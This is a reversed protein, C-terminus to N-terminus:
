PTHRHLHGAPEDATSLPSKPSIGAPDSPSSTTSIAVSASRPSEGHGLAMIRFVYATDPELNPITHTPEASGTDAVLVTLTSQTRERYLIKYGTITSDDPDDWELTVSSETSNARLNTPM